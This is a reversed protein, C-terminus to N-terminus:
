FRKFFEIIDKYGLAQAVRNLTVVGVNRDGDFIRRITARSTESEFGLWEVSKEMKYLDRYIREGITKLLKLEGDDRPRSSQRPFNAPSHRTKAPKRM